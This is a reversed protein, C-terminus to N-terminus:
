GASPHHDSPRCAIVQRMRAIVDEIRGQSGADGPLHGALADAYEANGLWSAFTDALCQRVAVTATEVEACFSPRGEVVAVIDEVDESTLFDSGRGRFAEIKTAVFVPATVVRVRVHADLAYDAASAVAEPYWRNTFGLMAPHQPMVDLVLDDKRYRCIVGGEPMPEFGCARVHACFRGYDAQNVVEVVCDVDLTRRPAEAAPDTILLPLVAGGVFVVEHARDALALAVRRLAEHGSM